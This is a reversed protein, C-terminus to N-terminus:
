RAKVHSPSSLLACGILKYLLRAGVNADWTQGAPGPAVEVLDCGVIRRGSAVVAAVIAVAEDFSLGGPVPTGTQPCFRPDLGDIDFTIYVERPLSEAIRTAFADFPKGAHQHAVRDHDFFAEVRPGAATIADREERCLDRVGVSVLKSVGPLEDLVRHMVSAHSGRFGQYAVRLDAHADFQLIGLGPYREARAVISGFAVAHDGGLLAVFRGEEEAQTVQAAVAADLQSTLEDIRAITADDAKRPRGAEDDAMVELALRSAEASWSWWAPDVPLAVIGARHPEGSPALPSPRGRGLEELVLDFLDVQVSERIVAEPGRATGRGYSTTAEWPVSVVHVSATQPDHDLGYIPPLDSM